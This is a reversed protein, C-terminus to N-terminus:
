GLFRYTAKANSVSGSAQPIGAVPNKSVQEVIWKLRQRLREDPLGVRM